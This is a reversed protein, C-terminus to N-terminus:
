HMLGLLDGDLETVLWINVVSILCVQLVFRENECHLLRRVAREM